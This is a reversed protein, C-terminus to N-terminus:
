KRDVGWHCGQSKWPGKAVEISRHEVLAVSLRSLVAPTQVRNHNRGVSSLLRQIMVEVKQM